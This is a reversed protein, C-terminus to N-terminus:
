NAFSGESDEATLSYRITPLDLTGGFFAFTIPQYTMDDLEVTVIPAVDPGNPDGSFGLGSYEYDVSVNGPQINASIQQMRGVLADFAPQDMTTAFGCSGNCTCGTSTCSVGPFASAPVVTGQPIGGSVAFSYNALGNPSTGGPLMQTAVAWRAGTQTAKEARNITWSYLGVDITGMIFLLLLPLVLVFEAASSGRIDRGFEKLTCRKTM